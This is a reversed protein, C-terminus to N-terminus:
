KLELIKKYKDIKTERTEERQSDEGFALLLVFTLKFDQIVMRYHLNPMYSMNFDLVV